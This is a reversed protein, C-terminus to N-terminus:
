TLSTPIHDKKTLSSASGPYQRWHSKQNPTTPPLGTAAVTNVTEAARSNVVRAEVSTLSHVTCLHHTSEQSRTTTTNLPDRQLAPIKTIISERRPILGPLFGPGPSANLDAPRHSEFMKNNNNNNSTITMLNAATM